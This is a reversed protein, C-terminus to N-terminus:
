NSGKGWVWRGKFIAMVPPALAPCTTGARATAASGADLQDVESAGVADLGVEGVFRADSESGDGGGAQM